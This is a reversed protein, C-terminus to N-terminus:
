ACPAVVVDSSGATANWSVNSVGTRPHALMFTYFNQGRYTMKKEDLCPTGIKVFGALATPADGSMFYAVSRNFGDGSSLNINVDLKVVQLNNPTSPLVAPFVKTGKLTIASWDSAVGDTRRVRIQFEAKGGASPYTLTVSGSVVAGSFTTKDLVCASSTGGGTPTWTCMLDYGGIQAPPLTTNDTNTIVADWTLPTVGTSAFALCTLLSAAILSTIKKM